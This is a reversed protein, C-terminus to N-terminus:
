IYIGGTGEPCRILHGLADCFQYFSRFINMAQIPKPRAWIHITHLKPICLQGDVVNNTNNTSFAAEPFACLQLDGWFYRPKRVLAGVCHLLRAQMQQPLHETLLQQSCQRLSEGCKQCVATEQQRLIVSSSHETVCHDNVSYFARAHFTSFQHLAWVQLQSIIREM